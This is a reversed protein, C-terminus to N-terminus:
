DSPDSAISYARYVEEDSGEYRPTFLQVYQGSTYDIKEDGGLKFRFLRMDKTLEAIKACSSNFERVSLLEEPISIKIDGRVKVQCSLRIGDKREKQDIYAEETPLIDGGGELVKVKCLGCSGRGGCASPIFIKESILSSLLSDGGKIRIERKENVTIKCEGYDALFAHCITILAALGAGIMSVSFVSILFTQM